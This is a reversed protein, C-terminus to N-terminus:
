DNYFLYPFDECWHTGRKHGVSPNEESSIREVHAGQKWSIQNQEKQTEAVTQLLQKL